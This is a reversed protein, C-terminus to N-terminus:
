TLETGPSVTAMTLWAPPTKSRVVSLALMECYLPPLVSVKALAPVRSFVPPVAVLLMKEATVLVPRILAAAPSRSNCLPRVLEPEMVIAAPAVSWSSPPPPSAPVILPAPVRSTAFPVDVSLELAM